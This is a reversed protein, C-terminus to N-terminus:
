AHFLDKLKTKDLALKEAWKNVRGDLKNSFVQAVKESFDRFNKPSFKHVLDELLSEYDSDTVLSRKHAEKFLLSDDLIEQFKEAKTPDLDNLVIDRDM